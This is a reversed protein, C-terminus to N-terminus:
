LPEHYCMTALEAILTNFNFFATSVRYWPHFCKSSACLQTKSTSDSFIGLMSIYYISSKFGAVVYSVRLGRFLNRIDEETVDFPLNGVFATYPPQSPLRSYDIEVGRSARPASPLKSLDVAPKPPGYEM